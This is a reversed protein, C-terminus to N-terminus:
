APTPSHAPSEAAPPPLKPARFRRAIQHSPLEVLFYYVGTVAFVAGMLRAWEMWSIELRGYVGMYAIVLLHTLYMSYSAMGLMEFARVPKAKQYHLIEARIYFYGLIAFFNLTTPMGIQWHFMALWIATAGAWIAARWLWIAPHPEPIHAEECRCIDEALVCGVLWSAMGVLINWQVKLAGAYGNGHGFFAVVLFSVGFAAGTLKLWGWRKALWLLAPYLAYYAIECKLTWTVAKIRVQVDHASGMFHVLLEIVLWPIGIRLLRRAYFSPIHLRGHGAQPYHICFGSIVFFLVVAAQGNFFGGHEYTFKLWLLFPNSGTYGAFLPPVANHFFVVWLACFFRLSDLGSITRKM